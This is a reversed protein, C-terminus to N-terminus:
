TRLRRHALENMRDLPPLRNRESVFLPQSALKRIRPVDRAADDAPEADRIVLGDAATVDGGGEAEEDEGAHQGPQHAELERHRVVVEDTGIEVVLDEGDVPRRHHEQERHRDHFRHADIQHRQHDAADHEDRRHQQVRRRVDAPEAVHRERPGVVRRTLAGVEPRLENGEGLNRSERDGDLEHRGDELAACRAHGQIPHREEDPRDEDHREHDDERHGRDHRGTREQQEVPEHARVEVIGGLAAVREQPLVQEPEEAMGLDVDDDHRREAHHRRDDRRERPTRHEAIGRHHQREHRGPEDAESQPHVVHERGPQRRETELVERSRADHDGNWRADLDEAPNRREPAPTRTEVCWEQKDEAEDGDEDKAPQRAYRERRHREVQLNVIRVVDDGVEM